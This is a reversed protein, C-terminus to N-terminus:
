EKQDRRKQWIMLCIGFIVSIGYFIFPHDFVKSYVEDLIESIAGFILWSLGLGLPLALCYIIFAMIWLFVELLRDFIKMNTM